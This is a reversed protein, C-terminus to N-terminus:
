INHTQIFNLIFTEENEKKLEELMNSFDNKAIVAPTTIVGKENKIEEVAEIDEIVLNKQIFDELEVGNIYTTVLYHVTAKKKSLPFEINLHYPKAVQSFGKKTTSLTIM